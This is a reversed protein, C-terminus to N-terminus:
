ASKRRYFNLLGGLRERREIAGQGGVDGPKPAILVNGIGQHHREGNYHALYERLARRLSLEGFLILRRLCESKISRV